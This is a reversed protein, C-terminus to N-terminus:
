LDDLLRSVEDVLAVMQELSGITIRVFDQIRGSDAWWRVLIGNEKLQRYLDGGSIRDSKAFVFNAQSPLVTFDLRELERVTWERNSQIAGTCKQFYAEDEVAATGAILSLRNVNYPNFSYKVRNLAGILEPSGLAYGVRGGALSRSKSMTQVVLLNDYRYIMPVCSEAGFDVYAEDVIVVRDPDAELLRQIEPRPVAMGTPANPNAIVITGPFDMYDDVNLTFDERLPIVTADLGFLATQAKYFGYTIDAYAVGKGEGCFARFAFGLIEDSGNGTIVHSRQMEYRKAIADVLQGCAPDSYLNLKLLEARSIAKIVKPAPPFPSENTNLKIYQQDQPQEGPTYPALRAAEGSLFRSM